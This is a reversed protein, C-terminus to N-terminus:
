QLLRLLEILMALWKALHSLILDAWFGFYAITGAAAAYGLWITVGDREMVSLALLIITYSPLSNTFFFPPSPLPLALLCGMLAILAGNFFRAAPWGLWSTRRPRVLKELGRLLGASSVLVRRGLQRPLARDGLKRPLRPPKGLAQRMAIVAITVGIVASLGPVSVPVVFPLCLLVMLLYLGAGQTRELLKNITLDAPVSGENLLEVLSHSLPKQM